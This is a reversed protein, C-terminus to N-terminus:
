VEYRCSIIFVINECHFSMSNYAIFGIGEYLCIDVILWFCSFEEGIDDRHVDEGPTELERLATHLQRREEETLTTFPGNRHRTGVIDVVAADDTAHPDNSGIIWSFWGDESSEVPHVLSPQEQSIQFSYM